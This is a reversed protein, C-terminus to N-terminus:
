SLTRVGDTCQVQLNKPMNQKWLDTKFFKTLKFEEVTGPYIINSLNFCYEFIEMGLHEVKRPLTVTTLEKCFAFSKDGLKNLEEPLKISTLSYCDAFAREGISKVSESIIINSLLRASYFIYEEIAEINDHIVYSKIDTKALYYNPIVYLFKAPDIGASLMSWTFNPVLKTAATRNLLMNYCETFEGHEILSINEEIFKKVGEHLEM